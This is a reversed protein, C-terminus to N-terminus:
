AVREFRSLLELHHTHPQFDFGEVHRLAFGRRQLDAADRAWSAVDCSAYLVRPPAARALGERVDRALGSRPPDLVVLDSGRLDARRADGREFAVTDAGLREADRRGRAVSEHSAEVARVREFRDALHLAAVGSGAYLDVALTGEEAQERLAQYLEGAASPNPQAFATASVSVDVRGYRQRLERAGALREKGGRFRGRADFAAAAVGDVGAAVLAHAADLLERAPRRTVFALLAGGAETGRLAVEEVGEPVGQQVLTDWARAVGANVTPDRELGVAEHSGPRRYGLRRAAPAEPVVVPQVTSRYGWVRPSPRVAPTAPLTVGARRAADALVEAKLALQREYAIFGYDLGPHEPAPVREAAAEEVSAVEGQLVGSARQLRARVLEGPLGGRVLAVEGSELRALARGGHVMRELRLPLQGVDEM